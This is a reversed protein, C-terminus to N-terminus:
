QCSPQSKWLINRAKELINDIDKLTQVAFDPQEIIGSLSGYHHELCDLLVKKLKDEPPREPLSSKRYIDELAPLRREFEEKIDAETWEGRRVSKLEERNRQLDLDGEILIQQCEDLLRIINYAYKVDFGYKDVSEKRKGTPEKGDLKHM